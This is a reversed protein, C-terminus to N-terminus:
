KKPTKVKAVGEKKENEESYESGDDSGESDEEGEEEDDYSEEEEDLSEEEEGEDEYESEEEEEEDVSEGDDEESSSYYEDEDSTEYIIECGNDNDESEDSSEWEDSDEELTSAIRSKPLRIRTDVSCVKPKLQFSVQFSSSSKVLGTKGTKCLRPGECVETPRDPSTIGAQNNYSVSSHNEQETAMEYHPGGAPFSHLYLLESSACASFVTGDAVAMATLFDTHDRLIQLETVEVRSYDTKEQSDRHGDRIRWVKIFKSGASSTILYGNGTVHVNDVAKDHYKSSREYKGTGILINPLLHVTVRTELDLYSLKGARDGFLLLDPGALTLCSIAEDQRFVRLLTGRKLDWVRISADESGSALSDPDVFVLQNVWGDHGEFKHRKWLKGKADTEYVYIAKDGRGGSAVWKDPQVALSQVYDVHNYIKEIVSGQAIDWSIVTKDMSGSYLISGSVKVCQGGIEHGGAELKKFLQKSSREYVEIGPDIHFQLAIYLDSVDMATVEEGSDFKMTDVTVDASEWDHGPLIVPGSAEGTEEAITLDDQSCSSFFNVVFM